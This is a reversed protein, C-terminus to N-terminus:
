NEHTRDPGAYLGTAVLCYDKTPNDELGYKLLVLADPSNVLLEGRHPDRNVMVSFLIQM